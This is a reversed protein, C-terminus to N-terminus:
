VEPVPSCSARMGRRQGSGRMVGEGSKVSYNRGGNRALTASSPACVKGLPALAGNQGQRRSFVTVLPLFMANQGQCCGSRSNPHARADRLASGSNTKRCVQGSFLEPGDPSASLVPARSRQPPRLAFQNKPCGCSFYNAAARSPPVQLRFTQSFPFVPIIRDRLFFFIRKQRPHTRNKAM